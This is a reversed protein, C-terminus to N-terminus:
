WNWIINGKEWPPVSPDVSRCFNNGDREVMTSNMMAKAWFAIATKEEASRKVIVMYLGWPANPVLTVKHVRQRRNKIEIAKALQM